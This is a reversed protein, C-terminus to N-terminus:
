ARPRCLRCRLSGVVDIREDRTRNLAGGLREDDFGRSAFSSENATETTGEVRQCIQLLSASRPM